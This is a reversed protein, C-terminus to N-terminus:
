QSPDQDAYQKAVALDGFDDPLTSVVALLQTRLELVLPNIQNPKTNLLQAM